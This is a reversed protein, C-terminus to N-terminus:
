NFYKYCLRIYLIGLCAIISFAGGVPPFVAVLTLVGVISSEAPTACSFYARFLSM